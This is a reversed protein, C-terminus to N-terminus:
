SCMEKLDKSIKFGIKEFKSFDVKYSGADELLVTM